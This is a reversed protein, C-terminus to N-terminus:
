FPDVDLKKEQTRSFVVANKDISDLIFFEHKAVFPIHSRVNEIVPSYNHVTELITYPKGHILVIKSIETAQLTYLIQVLFLYVAITM